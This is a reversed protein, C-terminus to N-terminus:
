LHEQELTLGINIEATEKQAKRWLEFGKQGINIM